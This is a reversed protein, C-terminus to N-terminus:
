EAAAVGVRRTTRVLVLSALSAIAAAIFAAPLSSGGAIVGMVPGAAGLGLDFCAL